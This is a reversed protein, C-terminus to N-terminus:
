INSITKIKPKSISDLFAQATRIIYKNNNIAIVNFFFFFDVWQVSNM